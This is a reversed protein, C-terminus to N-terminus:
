VAEGAPKLEAQWTRCGAVRYAQISPWAVSEVWLKRGDATILMDGRRVDTDPAFYVLFPIQEMTQAAAVTASALSAGSSSVRARYTAVPQWEVIQGGMGDATVQRRRVEVTTNLLHDAIRNSM